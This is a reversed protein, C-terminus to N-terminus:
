RELLLTGLVRLWVDNTNYLSRDRGGVIWEGTDAMRKEPTALRVNRFTNKM